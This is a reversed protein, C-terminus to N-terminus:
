CMPRSDSTEMSSKLRYLSPLLRYEDSSHGRFWLIEDYEDRIEKSVQEFAEILGELSQVPPISEYIKVYPTSENNEITSICFDKKMSDISVVNKMMARTMKNPKTFIEELPQQNQMKEIISLNSDFDSIHYGKFHQSVKKHFEEFPVDIEDNNDVRITSFLYGFAKKYLAGYQLYTNWIRQM